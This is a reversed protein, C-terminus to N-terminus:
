WAVWVGGAANVSRAYSHTVRATTRPSSVVRGAVRLAECISVAGKVFSTKTSGTAVRTRARTTDIRLTEDPVVVRETRARVRVYAVGEFM